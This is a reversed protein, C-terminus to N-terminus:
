PVEQRPPRGTNGWDIPERLALRAKLVQLAREGLESTRPEGPWRERISDTRNVIGRVADDDLPELPVALTDTVWALERALDEVRERQGEMRHRLTILEFYEHPFESPIELEPPGPDGDSITGLPALVDSIERCIDGRLEALTLEFQELADLMEGMSQYREGPDKAMATQVITSLQEPLREDITHVPAPDHETVHDLLERMSGGNFARAGTLLEYFVTGASFIDTRHDVEEGRVQEPSMYAPTGFLRDGTSTPADGALALGFDLVRVSGDPTIFINQPKVDRHTVGAEHAYAIAELVEKMRELRWELGLEQGARIMTKLTLGDLLEMVIYLRSRHEGMGYVVVIHPHELSAALAAERLVRSRTGRKADPMLKIAVEGLEDHSARFVVSSGGKGLRELVTYDGLKDFKEPPKMGTVTGPLPVGAFTFVGTTPAQM